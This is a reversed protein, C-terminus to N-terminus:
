ADAEEGPVIEVWSATLAETQATVTERGILQALRRDREGDVAALDREANQLNKLWVPLIRQVDPDDSQSLRDLTRRVAAAKEEAATRKYSYFRELKDREQAVRERNAIEVEAQREM